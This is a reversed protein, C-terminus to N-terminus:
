SNILNELDPLYKRILEYVAPHFASSPNKRLRNIQEETRLSKYWDSDSTENWWAKVEGIRENENM